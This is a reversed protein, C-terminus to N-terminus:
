CFVVRGPAVVSILPTYVTTAASACKHTAVADVLVIVILGPKATVADLLEGTQAPPVSFRKEEDVAPAVGNVYLQDAVEYVLVSGLGELLPALEDIAPSYLRVTVSLLPHEPMPVVLTTTLGDVLM